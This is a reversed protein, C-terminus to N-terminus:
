YSVTEEVLDRVNDAITEMFLDARKDEQPQFYLRELAFCLVVLILLPVVVYLSITAVFALIAAIIVLIALNWVMAFISDGLLVTRPGAGLVAMVLRWTFGLLKAPIANLKMAIPRLSHIEAQLDDSFSFTGAHRDIRLSNPFRKVKEPGVERGSNLVLSAEDSANTVVFDFRNAGYAVSFTRPLKEKDLM